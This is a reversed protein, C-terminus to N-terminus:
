KVKWENWREEVKASNKALWDADVPFMRKVNEPYTPLLRAREPKLHDYARSNPAGYGIASVFEAQREPRLTFAVFRMADTKNKAGKPVVWSEVAYLGQNWEIAVPAGKDIANQVRGNWGVLLDVEQDFLLQTSQAGTTWWVAVDKKIQDLKRLAREVDVPYLKEGPVGDAMLAIELSGWPQGYLARRGPFRKVDWFEAWSKPHSGGPFKKTNYALVTSYIDSGLGHSHVAAPLVDKPDIAKYDLPELLGEEAGRIVLEKVLISVDWEMNNAEVMAKIRGLSYHPRATYVVKVGTEKEFPVYYAKAAAEQWAGGPDTIVIQRAQAGAPRAWSALTAGGLAIGSRRLFERRTVASSM